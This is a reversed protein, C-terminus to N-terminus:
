AFMEVGDFFISTKGANDEGQLAAIRPAANVCGKGPITLYAYGPGVDMMVRDWTHLDVGRFRRFDPESETEVLWLNMTGRGMSVTERFANLDIEQKFNLEFAGMKKNRIDTAGNIADEYISAMETISLMVEDVDVARNITVKGNSYWETSLSVSGNNIKQWRTSYIAFNDKARDIVEALGPLKRRAGYWAKLSFNGAAEEDHTLGDSFKIGIGKEQWNKNKGYHLLQSRSLWCRDLGCTNSVWKLVTSDSIGADILSYLIWVRKRSADLFFSGPPNDRSSGQNVYWKTADDLTKWSGYGEIQLEDSLACNSEILYAKLQTTRSEGYKSLLEENDEFGAQFIAKMERFSGINMM